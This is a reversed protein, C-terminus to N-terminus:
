PIDDPLLKIDTKGQGKLREHSERRECKSSFALLKLSKKEVPYYFSNYDSETDLVKETWYKLINLGM